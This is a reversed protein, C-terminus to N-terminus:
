KQTFVIEEVTDYFVEKEYVEQGLDGNDSDQGNITRYYYYSDEGDETIEYYYSDCYIDDNETYFFNDTGHSLGSWLYIVGDKKVLTVPLGGYYENILAVKNNLVYYLNFSAYKGSEYSEETGILLVPLNDKGLLVIKYYAGEDIHEDLYKQYLIIYQFAKDIKSTYSGNYQTSDAMTLDLTDDDTLEFQDTENEGNAILTDGEIQYSSYAYSVGTEVDVINGTDDKSIEFFHVNLKGSDMSLEIYNTADTNLYNGIFDNVEHTPESKDSLAEATSPNDIKRVSNTIGLGIAGAGIVGVFLLMLAKKTITHGAASMVTKKSATKRVARISGDAMRAAEKGSNTQKLVDAFLQKAVINDTSDNGAEMIQLLWVFFTIPSLTYLKTGSKEMEKVKIEIKQKAYRLRSKVTNESIELQDAIEKIKLHQYYYMGIVIRQEDTLSDLIENILRSTEKRDMSEEPLYDVREEEFDMPADDENATMDSFLVPKKKKLYNKTNNVAIKKMWAPFSEPNELQYLKQFGKIYSEQVIDLAAHEDKMMTKVAYYVKDFTMYYLRTIAEQDSQLALRILEEYNEM